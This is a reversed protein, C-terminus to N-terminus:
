KKEAQYRIIIDGDDLGCERMLLQLNELKVDNSLSKNVYYNDDLEFYKYNDLGSIDDVAIRKKIEDLYFKNKHQEYIKEIAKRYFDVFSSPTFREEFIIAYEISKGAPDEDAELINMEKTEEEEKTIEVDPYKWINLFRDALENFRKEYKGIDWSDIGGLYRNLWLRSFKYGQEKNDINMEKKDKFSKNALAGNNGSLTLNALTHLYINEFQEYDEKTLDKKWEDVPQQPFIHEVTIDNTIPVFERNEHNELRELIYLKNKASYMDKEKLSNKVEENNPFRANGTKMVLEKEISELYNKKDVKDYLTMFIKNLANTPLGVVFRRTVYSQLLELVGILDKKDIIDNEFDSYVFILFPYSVSLEIRKIYDIHRRILDDKIKHPNILYHYSKSKQKLDELLETFDKSEKEIQNDSCYKKFEKYVKKKNPITKKKNTLYDRIFDSLLIKNDGEEFTNSEILKWYNKYIDEQNKPELDMLLYNRILDAQTLDQGTSNLSEFIMQQDDNARDLGIEVVILRKMGEDVLTSINENNIEKMILKFNKYINTKKEQEDFDKDIDKNIDSLKELIKNNEESSLLKPLKGDQRIYRTLILSAKEVADEVASENYFRYLALFILTLTTLRQQGDIIVIEKVDVVNYEEKAAIHVFSGIFHYKKSEGSTKIDNLLQRCQEDGWDYNRQYVPIVFQNDLKQVFDMFNVADAKM